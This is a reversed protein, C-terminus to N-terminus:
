PNKVKKTTADFFGTIVNMMKHIAESGGGVIGGSILVDLVRFTGAQMNNWFAVASPEATQGVFTNFSRVGVAAILIGLVVGCRLAISQTECKYGVLWDSKDKVAQQLTSDAANKALAEKAAQLENERTVTEKGRWATIFVELTREVFLALVFFTGLLKTVVEPGLPQQTRYGVKWALVLGAAVLVALVLWLATRNLKESM